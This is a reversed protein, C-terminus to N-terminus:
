MDLDSKDPLLIWLIIYLLIGSGWAIGLFVAIVRIITVDIHFYESLGSCVGGIMAGDRDRFLSNKSKYAM